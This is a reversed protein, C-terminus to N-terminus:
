PRAFVDSPLDSLGLRTKWAAARDPRAWDEYFRVVRAAAEGLGPREPVSLRSARAKLGEYGNVIMPEAEAFRGEGALAAGLVNMSAFRRWDDPSVKDRIAISARLHPGAESWRGQEVLNRGLGALDTALLPSDPPVTGRRRALADRRLTEADSWRGLSEYALALENQAALTFVHDPGLVSRMLVLM